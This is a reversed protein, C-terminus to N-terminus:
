YAYFIQRVKLRTSKLICSFIFVLSNTSPTCNDQYSYQAIFHFSIFLLIAHKTQENVNTQYLILM